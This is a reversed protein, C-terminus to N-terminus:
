SRWLVSARVGKLLYARAGASLARFVDEDGDNITLVVFRAQPAEALVHQMVEVGSKRPMRLDILTVDPQHKAFQEIAEAGDAAEGVVEIGDVAGLLAVVGQRVVHHDEVVLARISEQPMDEM